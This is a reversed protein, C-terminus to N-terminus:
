DKWIGKFYDFLAPSFSLVEEWVRKERVDITWVDWNEKQPDMRLIQMECLTDISYQLPDELSKDIDGVSCMRTGQYRHLARDYTRQTTISGPSVLSLTPLSFGPLNGSMPLEFIAQSFIPILEVERMQCEQYIRRVAELSGCLTFLYVQRPLHHKFASHLFSVITSASVITTSPILWIKGPRKGILDQSEIEVDAGAPSSSRQCRILSTPLLQLDYPPVTGIPYQFDFPYASSLFLYQSIEKGRLKEYFLEVLSKAMYRILNFKPRGSIERGLLIREGVESEVVYVLPPFAPDHRLHRVEWARASGLANISYPKAVDELFIREAM